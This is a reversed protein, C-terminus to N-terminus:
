LFSKYDNWKYLNVYNQIYGFAHHIIMILFHFDPDQILTFSYFIYMYPM